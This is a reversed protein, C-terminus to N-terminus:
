DKRKRETEPWEGSQEVDRWLRSLKKASRVDFGGQTLVAAFRNYELAFENLRDPLVSQAAAAAAQGLVALGLWTRRRM